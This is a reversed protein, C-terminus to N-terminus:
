HYGLDEYVLIPLGLLEMTLFAGSDCAFGDNAKVCDVNMAM